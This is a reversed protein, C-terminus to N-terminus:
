KIVEDYELYDSGKKFTLYIYDGDATGLYNGESVYDYLSVPSNTVNSYWYDVEDIGQVIITNGYGEKEGSYVVIGSAVVPVLYNKKVELKYGDKFNEIHEYTLKESFVTQDDRVIDEFPLIDGFYKNYVNAIATFSMNEKLVKEKLFEAGWKTTNSAIVCVFFIIIAILIRTILMDVYKKTPTSLEKKGILLNRKKKMKLKYEQVSNM